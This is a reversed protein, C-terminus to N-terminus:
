AIIKMVRPLRKYMSAPHIATLRTTENKYRCFSQTLKAIVIRIQRESPKKNFRMLGLDESKKEFSPNASVPMPQIRADRMPQKGNTMLWAIGFKKSARKSHTEPKVVV